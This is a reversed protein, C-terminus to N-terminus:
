QSGGAAASADIAERLTAATNIPATNSVTWHWLGNKYGLLNPHQEAWDLLAADSTASRTNWATIAKEQTQHGCLGRNSVGCVMCNCYFAETIRTGDAFWAEHSDSYRAVGSSSAEGGCFPCPKVENPNTM